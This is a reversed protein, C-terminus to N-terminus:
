GGSGAARTAAYYGFRFASTGAPGGFNAAGHLDASTPRSWHTRNRSLPGGLGDM